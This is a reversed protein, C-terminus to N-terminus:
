VAAADYPNTDPLPHRSFRSATKFGVCRAPGVESQLSACRHKLAHNEEELLKLTAQLARIKRRHASGGSSGDTNGSDSHSSLVSGDDDGDSGPYLLANASPLDIDGVGPMVLSRRGHGRGTNPTLRGRSDDDDDDDIDDDDVDDDDDDDDYSDYGVDASGGSSMRHGRRVNTGRETSGAAIGAVASGDDLRGGKPGPASSGNARRADLERVVTAYKAQLDALSRCVSQFDSTIM